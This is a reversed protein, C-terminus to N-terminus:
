QKSLFKKIHNGVNKGQMYCQLATRKVIGSKSEEPVHKTFAHYLEESSVTDIYDMLDKFVKEKDINDM